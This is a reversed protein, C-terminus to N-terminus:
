CFGPLLFARTGSFIRTDTIMTTFPISTTTDTSVKITVLATSASATVTVTSTPIPYHSSCYSEAPAYASLPLFLVFQSSASFFPLRQLIAPAADNAAQEGCFRIKNFGGKSKGTQDMLDEFTVEEGDAGWTHSLIAYPPISHEFYLNRHLDASYIIKCEIVLRAACSEM